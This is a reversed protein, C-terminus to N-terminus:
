DVLSWGTPNGLCSYQLPHGNGAGPYKGLGPISGTEGTEQIAPPNKVWQALPLTSISESPFIRIDLLPPSEGVSTAPPLPIGKANDRFCANM